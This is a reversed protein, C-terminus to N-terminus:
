ESSTRERSKMSKKEVNEQKKSKMDGGHFFHARYHMFLNGIDGRMRDIKRAKLSM